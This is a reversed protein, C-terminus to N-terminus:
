MDLLCFDLNFGSSLSYDVKFGKVYFLLEDDGKKKLRIEWGHKNRNAM